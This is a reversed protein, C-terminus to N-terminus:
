LDDDDPFADAYDDGSGGSEGAVAEKALPTEMMTYAGPGAPVMKEANVLIEDESMNDSRAEESDLTPIITATIAKPWAPPAGGRKALIGYANSVSTLLTGYDELGEPADWARARKAYDRNEHLFYRPDRRRKNKILKM